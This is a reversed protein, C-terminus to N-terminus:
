CKALVFPYAIINRSRLLVENFLKYRLFVDLIASMREAAFTILLETGFSVRCEESLLHEETPWWPASLQAYGAGHQLSGRQLPFGHVSKDQNHTM